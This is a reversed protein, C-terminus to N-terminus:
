SGRRSEPSDTQPLTITRNDGSSYGSTTIARTVPIGPELAFDVWIAHERISLAQLTSLM